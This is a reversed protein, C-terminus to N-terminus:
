RFLIATRICEFTRECNRDDHHFFFGQTDQRGEGNVALLVNEATKRPGKTVPGFQKPDIFIGSYHDRTFHEKDFQYFVVPKNQYVFDMYVSSYDTVIVSSRRILEAIDPPVATLVKGSTHFEGAYREMEPHLALLLNWGEPLKDWIPLSLFSNWARFFESKRFEEAGCGALWKRWTPFVLVIKDNETNILNDYRCLGSTMLVSAPQKLGERAYEYEPMASVTMLDPHYHKASLWETEKDLVGHQFFVNIGKPRFLGKEALHYYATMDPTYGYTHTSILAEAYYMAAYHKESGPEIIKESVTHVKRYDPDKKGILYYTDIEPHNQTMYKFFAFGNDQADYSRESILWVPRKTQIGVADLKGKANGAMYRMYAPIRKLQDHRM